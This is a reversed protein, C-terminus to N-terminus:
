VFLGHRALRRAGAVRVDDEAGAAEAALAFARPDAGPAARVALADRRASVGVPRGASTYARPAFADAHFPAAQAELERPLNTSAATAPAALPLLLAASLLAPWRAHMSLLEWPAIGAAM